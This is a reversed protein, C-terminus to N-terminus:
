SLVASLKRMASITIQKSVADTRNAVTSQLCLALVQIAEAETFPPHVCREAQPVTMANAETEMDAMERLWAGTTNGMADLKTITTDTM